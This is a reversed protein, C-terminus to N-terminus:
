AGDNFVDPSGTLSTYTDGAGGEGVDGIRHVALNEAFVTASGTTATSTHGCSQDGLDTIRIVALNNIFVTSAGTIYTTTYAPHSPSPDACEAGDGLDTLRSIATMYM